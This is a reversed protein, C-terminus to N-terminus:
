NQYCGPWYNGNRKNGYLDVEWASGCGTEFGKLWSLFDSAAKNGSIGLSSDQNLLNELTVAPAMGSSSSNNWSWTFGNKETPATYAFTPLGKLVQNDTASWSRDGINATASYQNYGASRVAYADTAPNISYGGAMESSIINNLLITNEKGSNGGCRLAQRGGNNAIITSNLIIMKSVGLSLQAGGTTLNTATGASSRTVNDYVLCNDMAFILGTKGSGNAFHLAAGYQYGSNGIFRCHSIYVPINLANTAYIAGANYNGTTKNYLFDSGYIKLSGSASVIDIAGGVNVSSNYSVNCYELSVNGGTIYAFGGGSGATNGDGDSGGFTCSRLVTTGNTAYVAGGSSTANNNTFLCRTMTLSTGANTIVVAGGNQGTCHSFTCDTFTASGKNATDVRVAGGAGTSTTGTFICNDFLPSANQVLVLSGTATSGHTLTIDKVTVHSNDDSVIFIQNIGKGDLVAKGDGTITYSIEQGYTDKGPLTITQPLLHTGPTFHFTAEDLKENDSDNLLTIMSEVSMPDDEDLGAGTGDASVFYEWVVYMDDFDRAPFELVKGAELERGASFFKLQRYQNAASKVLANFGKEYNGKPVAIYASVSQGAALQLGEDGFTYVIKPEADIPKLSGDLFGEADTGARFKGSIPEGGNTSLTINKLVVADQASVVIRVLSSYHNLTVGTYGVSTGWMPAAKPDFSGEVYTQEGPFVVLDKEESVPYLLNFPSALGDRFVFPASSNGAEGASLPLSSAGNLMLRDGACWTVPYKGDQKNGLATKTDSNPLSVTLAFEGTNVEKSCAAALLCLPVILKFSNWNM